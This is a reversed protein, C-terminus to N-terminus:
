WETAHRGKQVWEVSEEGLETRAWRDCWPMSPEEVAKSMLLYAAIWYPGLVTLFSNISGM